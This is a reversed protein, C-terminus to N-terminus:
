RKGRKEVLEGRKIQGSISGLDSAVIDMTARRVYALIDGDAHRAACAEIAAIEVYNFQLHVKGDCQRKM